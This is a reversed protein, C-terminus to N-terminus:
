RRVRRAVGHEKLAAGGSAIIRASGWWRVPLIM